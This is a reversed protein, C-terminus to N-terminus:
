HQELRRYFDAITRGIGFTQDAQVYHLGHGINDPEILRGQGELHPMANRRLYSTTPQGHLILIPDSEGPNICAMRSGQISAFTNAYRSESSVERTPVNFAECANGDHALAEHGALLVSSDVIFSLVNTKM